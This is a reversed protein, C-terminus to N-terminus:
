TTLDGKFTMRKRASTTLRTTFSSHTRRGDRFAVNRTKLPKRWTKVRKELDQIEKQQDTSKMEPEFVRGQLDVYQSWTQAYLPAVGAASFVFVSSLFKVLIKM